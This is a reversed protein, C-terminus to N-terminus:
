DNRVYIAFYECHKFESKRFDNANASICHRRGIKEFLGKRDHHRGRVRISKNLSLRILLRIAEITEKAQEDNPINALWNESVPRGNEFDKPNRGINM